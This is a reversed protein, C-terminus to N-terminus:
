ENLPRKIFTFYVTAQVKTVLSTGDDNYDILVVEDKGMEVAVTTQEKTPYNAEGRNLTNEELLVATRTKGTMQDNIFVNFKGEGMSANGILRLGNFTVRDKAFILFHMDDGSGTASINTDDTSKFAFGSNYLNATKRGRWKVSTATTNTLVIGYYNFPTMGTESIPVEYTKVGTALDITVTQLLTGLTTPTDSTGFDRLELDVTTGGGGGGADTYTQILDVYFDATAISTKIFFEIKKVDTLDVPTSGVAVFNAFDLKVLEFTDPQSVTIAHKSEGGATDHLHIEILWGAAQRWQFQIGTRGGWDETTGFTKTFTDQNSKQKAGQSAMKMSNIGEQIIVTELTNPTNPIDKPVWVAQLAATDAYSEFDEVTVVSGSGSGAVIADITLHIRDIETIGGSLRFVQGIDTNSGDLDDVNAPDDNQNEILVRPSISIKNNGGKNLNVLASAYSLKDFSEGARTSQAPKGGEYYYIDYKEATEVYVVNAWDLVLASFDAYSEDVAHRTEGLQIDGISKADAKHDTEFDTKDAANSGSIDIVRSVQIYITTRYLQM